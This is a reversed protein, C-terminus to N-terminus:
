YRELTGGREPPEYPEPWFEVLSTVLGSGDVRFFTLGTMTERDVTFAIRTAGGTEDAHEEVLELRWDGPYARMFAVLAERGRCRERTQPWTAEVDPAVCGAFREWDREQM